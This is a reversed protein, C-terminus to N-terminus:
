QTDARHEPGNWFVRSLAPSCRARAALVRQPIIQMLPHVSVVLDPEFHEFARAVQAVCDCDSLSRWRVEVVYVSREMLAGATQMGM